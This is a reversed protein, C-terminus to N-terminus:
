MHTIMVRQACKVLEALNRRKLAGTHNFSLALTVMKKFGKLIETSFQEATLM